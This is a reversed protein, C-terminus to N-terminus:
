ETLVPEGAGLYADAVGDRDLLSPGPGEAVILGRQLVYGYDAIALAARAMQEVLLIALGDDSMERLRGLIEEVLMPALGLSPEDLLLLRPAAMLARGIAVMQAEGGSLSGALQRRREALRPFLAYIRALSGDRAAARRRAGLSGLRALLPASSWAGLLLNEEVSLAAFLERGEPVLAM